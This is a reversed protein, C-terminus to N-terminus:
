SRRLHALQPKDSTFPDDPQVSLRYTVPWFDGAAWYFSSMSADDLIGLFEDMLTLWGPEDGPVGYEGIIGRANNARCWGIFPLVRAAARNPLNPDANLEQQYTKAYKGSHDDDFYCHAEYVVNELADRIWPRRGNVLPWEHAHSWAVGGVLIMKPDQNSRIQDVALQSVARWDSPQDHPENMLGYAVVTADNKFQWSLRKWLDGFHERRVLINGNVVEDIGAVRRINDGGVLAYRGYNHVDLVVRGGCLRVKQILEKIRNIEDALLDAGLTPQVREWRIPVRFHRVGREMFYQITELSSFKYEQGHVGPVRNSHGTDWNGFEGGALNVGRVAIRPKCSCKRPLATTPKTTTVVVTGNGEKMITKFGDSVAVRVAPRQIIDM